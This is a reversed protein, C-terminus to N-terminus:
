RFKRKLLVVLRRFLSNQSAFYYIYDTIKKSKLNKFVANGLAKKEFDSALLLLGKNYNTEFNQITASDFKYKKNFFYFLDKMQDKLFIHDEFNKSHSYSDDHIRYLHLSEQIMEFPSNMVMDVLIPYDEITINMNLYREFDVFQYLSAKNYCVGIPIIKGLLVHKKYVNQSAYIPVKNFFPKIRKSDDFLLDTGSDVFGLNKNSRLVDVMKQLSYHHKLLDDGAIDFVYTGSCRDLTAKFNGLIGLQKENRKTKFLNPYQLQYKNIISLTADTSGDDGIVIEYEFDLQQKLVSALTEEIHKENNYTLIHVSLVIM